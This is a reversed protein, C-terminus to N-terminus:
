GNLSSNIGAIIKDQDKITYNKKIVYNRIFPVHKNNFEDLKEDILIVQEETSAEIKLENSALKNDIWNKSNKNKIMKQRNIDLSLIWRFLM